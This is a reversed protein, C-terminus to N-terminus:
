PFPDEVTKRATELEIQAESFDVTSDGQFSSKNVATQMWDIAQYYYGDALAKNGIEICQKASLRIGTERGAVSGRAIQSLCRLPSELPCVQSVVRM